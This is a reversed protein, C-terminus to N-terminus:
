VLGAIGVVEGANLSFSMGRVSKGMTVNEVSLVPEHHDRPVYTARETAASPLDRGVMLRILKQRDFESTLGSRVRQGDRLITIRDSLELAEELAHSIFIIAVGRGRLDRLLDFFRRTEVAAQPQNTSYSFVRM